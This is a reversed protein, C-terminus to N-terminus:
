IAGHVITDQFGCTNVMLKLVQALLSDLASRWQPSIQRLEPKWKGLLYIVIECLREWSFERSYGACRCYPPRCPTVMTAAALEAEWSIASIAFRMAVDNLDETRSKSFFM